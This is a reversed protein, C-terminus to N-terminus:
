RDRGRSQLAVDGVREGHLDLRLVMHSMELDPGFLASQEQIAAGVPDDLTDSIIKVKEKSPWEATRKATEDLKVVLQMQAGKAKDARALVLMVGCNPEYLHITASDAPIMGDIYRVLHCLAEEINLSGLIRLSAQYIFNEIDLSPNMKM